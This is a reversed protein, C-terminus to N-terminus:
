GRTLTEDLNLIMSMVITLAAHEAQPISEDRKSEGIKLLAAAQEPASEYYKLEDRYAAALIELTSPKPRVGAALRYAKTLRDDLEQADPDLLLRQALARAAEVFQPDNLTVLAQLPTNTRSRRITCLERSPTDFIIMSPAPASRKWYIYMSRRYLNEGHDQEFRVNGNLSVENWLGPPQYPKVGPGGITDVLLGSAALANDRIFEGALRFRPGRSLLANEPDIEMVEHTVKTSQRYTQSMVMQKIMRKVNWGSDVFDVALWDLLEPHSPWEGQSGFDELSKVLGRGFLMYWYRNVTVRATLPHDPQTLWQALGLRNNPAGEPINGLISLVDSTIPKEKDPSAYNGRTLLYTQRPKPLNQMIMVNGVPKEAVAIAKKLRNQEKTIKQAMEDYSTFYVNRLAALDVETRENAPKAILSLHLKGDALAAVEDETLQRAYMRVNDIQGVFNSGSSRRGINLSTNAATTASLSDQEVNVEQLQGNVFVKVGGSKQSGDYTIFVHQWEDKKLPTKTVVKIANDPWSHILHMGVHGNQLWLDYGRHSNGDNMRALVAGSINGGPRIWAGYSFSQTNDFAALDGFEVFSKGDLQLSSGHKGEAHQVSGNSTGALSNDASNAIQQTDAEEFTCYLLADDIVYTEGNEIAAEMKTLWKSFAEQSSTQHAELQKTVGVLENKLTAAEALGRYNPVDIVPSQNGNRTQMGPDASQNFFDYFAYYDRQSIPDYKHDHCQACEVTLGLWVQATTRVRDVAYEVRAEEAIVGGEDTSANNRLFATAIKQEVTADPILDGALQERTFEDFPKNNNYANIVWDRWPWMTRPGDAHFVSTDGYRALDMWSVTMREGYRPSALLRDVVREYAEPSNDALFADIEAITPPLGTLDFTVRRLLREKDAEKALTLGDKELRRQIFTDIAGRIRADSNVQPVGPKVPPIFSWHGQFEAGQQIWQRLIDRQESTVELHSDPPPMVVDADDSLIRRWGESKELDGTRFAYEIGEENDLRLDAARQKEDPGHCHFCATSLIPRVDRNFSLRAAKDALASRAQTFGVLSMAATLLALIQFRTHPPITRTSLM